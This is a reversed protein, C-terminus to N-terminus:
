KIISASTIIVSTKPVDSPFPGSPGTPISKIKDVVDMGSVVKGFVTYGVLKPNNELNARPINTYTKGNYNFSPVPDRPPVVTPDLFANEAVNIFFQSTASNPESTRAMAVTGIVNKDGGKALAAQGEHMVPARTPKEAFTKTYGGGQVMFGPIVRHFITGDYHRDKVYQLFNAVTKPAKDPYLELVVDGLNTSIKVHPNDVKPTSQAFLSTCSLALLALLAQVVKSTFLTKSLHMFHFPKHQFLLRANPEPWILTLQM